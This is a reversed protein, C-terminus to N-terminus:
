ILDKLKFTQFMIHSSPEDEYLVGITEADVMALSSYAFFGQNIVVENLWDVHACVGKKHRIKGVTLVGNKRQHESPHSCFVYEGHAIVSKQCKPAYLNTKGFKEWTKGKNMSVSVPTKGYFKQRGFGVITGNPAEIMQWEDVNEAYPASTMRHWTEGNDVSYISVASKRDVYLPMIIRGDATTIGTGPAVGLFTGDKDSLVMNTIDQPESWTKGQDKSRLMFVYCRKPAKLPAGFTTKAGVENKGIAGNLYMNGVYEEGKYLSGHGDTVRYDTSEKKSDLVTGDESIYYFNGDRDYILPRMRGNLQAYPVKHKDLLKQNHLGKCEPWFDALLIVDGNPAVAMCPDIYFASAYSDSTIRTERAPPVAIPEIDSWTKGGDESRRVALEIYGWDAGSSARDIAAILTGGANILSPIRFAVGGNADNSNATLEKKLFVESNGCFILQPESM